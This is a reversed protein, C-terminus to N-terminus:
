EPARLAFKAGPKQTRVLVANFPSYHRFRRAFETLELFEQSSSYRGANTFLGDLARKDAEASWQEAPTPETKDDQEAM